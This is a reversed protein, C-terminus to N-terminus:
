VGRTIADGAAEAEAAVLQTRVNTEWCNPCIGHSLQADSHASLYSEVNHWYNQDDRINKCYCCIPLLGQLQKVRALAQELESVRGRLQDQLSVVQIGVNIRAEFEDRDFPKTIYDNAGARLGEILSEKGDRATLLIMYIARAHVSARARRCIEVGPVGPMMWDLIALPPPEPQQLIQWAENGDCASIVTHGRSRLAAALRLRSVEDDDAILLRM